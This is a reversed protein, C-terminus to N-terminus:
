CIRVSGAGSSRSAGAISRVGRVDAGSPNPLLHRGEARPQPRKMSVLSLLIMGVRSVQLSRSPAVSRGPSALMMLHLEKGSRGPSALMM